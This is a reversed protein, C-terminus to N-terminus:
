CLSYWSSSRAVLTLAESKELFFGSTLFKTHFKAFKLIPVLIKSDNCPHFFTQKGTSHPGTTQMIEKKPRAERLHEMAKM